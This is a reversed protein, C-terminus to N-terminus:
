RSGENQWFFSYPLSRGPFDLLHDERLMGRYTSMAGLVGALLIAARFQRGFREFGSQYVALAAYPVVLEGIALLRLGGYSVSVVAIFSSMALVTVIAVRSKEGKSLSGMLVGVLMVATIVLHSMGSIDSPAFYDRQFYTAYKEAFHSHGHLLVLISILAFGGLFWAYTRFRPRLTVLMWLAFFLITSYHMFVAAVIWLTTRWIERLRFSQMALLAIAFALGFRQGSISSTWFEAPIFFAQLIFLEQHDARCVYLVLLATFAMGLGMTVALLPTPFLATTLHLLALFLPETNVPFGRVVSVAMGEYVIGTDVGVRGRLVVVAGLLLVSLAACLRRRGLVAGMAFLCYNAIWGAIYIM